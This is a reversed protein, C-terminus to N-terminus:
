YDQMLEECTIFCMGHIARYSHLYIAQSYLYIAQSHALTFKGRLQVMCKSSMGQYVHLMTHWHELQQSGYDYSYRIFSIEQTFVAM